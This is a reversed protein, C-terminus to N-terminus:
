AKIADVDIATGTLATFDRQVIRAIIGSVIPAAFSTDRAEALGGGPLPM